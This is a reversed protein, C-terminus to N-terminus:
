HPCLVEQRRRRSFLDLAIGGLYIDPILNGNDDLYDLSDSVSIRLEVISPDHDPHVLSGQIVRVYKDTFNIVM